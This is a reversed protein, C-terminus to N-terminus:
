QSYLEPKGAIFKAWMLNRHLTGDKSLRIRGTKGNIADGTTNFFGPKNALLMADMGLAFLRPYRTPATQNKKLLDMVLPTETFILGELSANKSADQLGSFVHSTAFIPIDKIDQRLIPYIRQVQTPSAALLIADLQSTRSSVSKSIYSFNNGSNVYSKNVIVKGGREITATRMKENLRKGWKSDPTIIAVRKKGQNLAFQAVQVAEDEPLLGFQYLNKRAVNQTSSGLYNLALTPRVLTSKSLAALKNKDFPGIVMAAGEKIAKQYLQTIDGSNSDYTKLPKSQTSNKHAQKIGSLISNGVASLSGSLPLIVAIYNGAVAHTPTEAKAPTSPQEYASPEQVTDSTIQPSNQMPTSSSGDQYPRTTAVPSFALIENIKANGPHRPNQKKWQTVKNKLAEENNRNTKQIYALELWSNLIPHAISRRGQNLRELPLQKIQGWIRDNNLKKEHTSQLTSEQLVLEQVLSLKDGSAQAASMRTNLIKSALGEPLHSVRQPLLRLAERYNRDNLALQAQTFRFRAQNEPNLPINSVPALYRQTLDKDKFISALEAAQLILRERYPSPYNNAAAFYASAAERKKGAALFANAQDIDQGAPLANHDSQPTGPISSQPVIPPLEACGGFFLAITIFFLSISVKNLRM